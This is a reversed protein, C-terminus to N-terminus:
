QGVGDQKATAARAIPQHRSLGGACGATADQRLHVREGGARELREPYPSLEM